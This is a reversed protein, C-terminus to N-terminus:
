IVLLILEVIVRATTQSIGLKDSILKSLNGEADAIIYLASALKSKYEKGLVKILAKEVFKPAKKIVKEVLEKLGKKGAKKVIAKLAKLAAKEEPGRVPSTTHVADYEADYAGTCFIMEYDDDTMNELYDFNAEMTKTVVIESKDFEVQDLLVEEVAEETETVESAKVKFMNKNVSVGVVTCVALALAIGRVVTKNKFVNKM